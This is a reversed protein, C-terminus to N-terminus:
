HFFLKGLVYLCDSFTTELIGALYIARSIHERYTRSLTERYLHSKKKVRSFYFQICISPTKAQSLNQQKSKISFM